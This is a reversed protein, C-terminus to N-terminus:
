RVVSSNVRSRRWASARAAWSRSLPLPPATRAQASSSVRRHEPSRAESIAVRRTPSQRRPYPWADRTTRWPLPALGALHEDGLFQFGVELSEQRPLLSVSLIDRTISRCEDTLSTGQRAIPDPPHDLAEHSGHAQIGAVGGM